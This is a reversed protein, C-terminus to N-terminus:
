CIFSTYKHLGRHIKLANEYRFFEQKTEDPSYELSTYPDEQTFTEFTYPHEHQEDAPFHEIYSPKYVEYPFPNYKVNGSYVGHIRTCHISHYFPRFLEYTKAGGIVVVPEKEALKLVEAPNYCHIAGEIRPKFASSGIINKTLVINKRDPLLRGICDHTRVGMVVAKGKTLEKFRKLDNPYHWLLGSYNKYKSVQRTGDRGKNGIVFYASFAVVMSIDYM